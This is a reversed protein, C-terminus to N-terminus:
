TGLAQRMPIALAPKPSLEEVIGSKWRYPIRNVVFAGALRPEQGQFPSRDFFGMQEVRVNVPRPEWHERVGEIIVMSHTQAEYDFTFPLPGAFKRAERWDKFPSGQPLSAEGERLDATVHIPVPTESTQIELSEPTLSTRLRMPHYHYHTMLNGLVVMFYRDTDSRLIRLGRLNRGRQDRYRTFIRYGTLFFDFGMWAPLSAPRLSRTQVMAVAVFGMDEYTDLTLGPPLLPELLARPWAYTLVLSYDFYAEVPFPHRRLRYLM